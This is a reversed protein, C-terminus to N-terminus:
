LPCDKPEVAQADYELLSTCTDPCSRRAREAATGAVIPVQSLERDDAYLPLAVSYKLPTRKRTAAAVVIGRSYRWAVRSEPCGIARGANLV